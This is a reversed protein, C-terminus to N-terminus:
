EAYSKVEKYAKTDTYIEGTYPNKKTKYVVYAQYVLVAVNIALSLIAATWCVAATHIEPTPFLKPYHVNYSTDYIGITMFIALTSARNQLWAGKNWLFSPITCALLLAIGNYVTDGWNLTYTFNWIDYAIIWFWMMDPWLMDKHKKKSVTIGVFGCLTIINLIGAVANLINYPGGQYVALGNIITGPERFYSQFDSIVAEVINAALIFPPFYKAFWTGQVKESYRIVLFGICGALASYTKVPAFWLYVGNKINPIYVLFTLVLPVLIYTFIGTWKNWRAFENLLILLIMVAFVNLWAM